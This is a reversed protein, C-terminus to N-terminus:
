SKWKIIRPILMGVKHRYEFYEKSHESSLIVKEEDKASTIYFAILYFLTIWLFVSNFLITTSAWVLIYSVYFPHRVIAYPGSTLLNGVNKSFAFDLGRATLIAWWFLALSVCLTALWVSSALTSVEPSGYFVYLSAFIQIGVMPDYLRVWFTIQTAQTNFFQLRAWILSLIIAIYTAIALYTIINM